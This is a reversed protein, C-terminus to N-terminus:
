SCIAFSGGQQGRSGLGRGLSRLEVERDSKLEPAAYQLAMGSQIVAAIVVERDSQLEAAAYRLAMGYQSVAALVVGRDLKFEPAAYQLAMGDQAVAALVVGRDAKLEPAAYQLAKGCEAVAALVVGRDSKLEPTMYELRLGREAVFILAFERDSKLEPAAYELTATATRKLEPAAYQLATEHIATARLIFERDSKLAPAAYQLCSATISKALLALVVGYDSQAEPVVQLWQEAERVSMAQIRRLWEVQEPTRQVLLLDVPEYPTFSGLQKLSRLEHLGHYLRQYIPQIGTKAAIAAKLSAVPAVKSCVTCLAGAPGSVCFTLSM